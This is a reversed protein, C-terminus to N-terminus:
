LKPNEGSIPLVHLFPIYRSTAKLFSIPASLMTSTTVPQGGGDALLKGWLGEEPRM